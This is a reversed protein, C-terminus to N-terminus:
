EETPRGNSVIRIGLCVMVLALCTRLSFAQKTEQLLFASWLVGMVPILCNYISIKSVPNEALLVSWITYAGGSVCALYFIIAVGKWAFVISPHMLCGTVVLALGGTIFQLASLRVPDQTQSFKRILVTSAAGFLQSLVVMINGTFTVSSFHLGYMICVAAFGLLCGALKERTMTELRFLYCAMLLSFFASLGLLVSAEVGSTMSLGMYYFFYQGFTQCLALIGISYGRVNPRHRGIVLWVLIGALTFRLGAFLLISATDQIHLQEYGIKIFPGASGWLICCLMGMCFVMWPKRFM